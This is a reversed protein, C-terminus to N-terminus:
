TGPILRKNEVQFKFGSVKAYVSGTKQLLSQYVVVESVSFEGSEFDNQLHKEILEKSNQPERLRAITLHAKFNRKEGAFGKGECEVELIKNLGQLSRKEDEIGLWLVRANKKSPFAGTKSIKLKFDSIQKATENVAETLNHLQVQDIDGLFKLTLHLKEPKDWGIRVNPFEARLDTIYDSVQWRAEDSIDIATFIRKM